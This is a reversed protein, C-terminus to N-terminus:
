LGRRGARRSPHFGPVAQPESGWGGMGPGGEGELSCGSLEHQALLRGADEAHAPPVVYRDEYRAIALLRFLDEVDEASLGVEGPQMSPDRGLQRARMVARVTALRRLAVRVPEPDGATFLNALYEVPIRLADITAFVQEVDSEDGGAERAVDAVPSLPPIYWVMPMTRFEPHLPLAVRYRAILAYTPSRRAALVWDHPVGQREAEAAVEPDNPDLFVGLQAEYLSTPDATAAAELVRDADYLVIGLYRLRGVCTESCITPM